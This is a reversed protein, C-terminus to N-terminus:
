FCEILYNIFQYCCSGKIQYIFNNWEYVFKYFIYQISCRATFRLKENYLCGIFIFQLKDKHMWNWNIHNSVPWPLLLSLNSSSQLLPPYQTSKSPLWIRFFCNLNLTVKNWDFNIFFFNLLYWLNCCVIHLSLMYM